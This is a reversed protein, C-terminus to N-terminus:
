ATSASASMGHVATAPSLMDDIAKDIDPSRRSQLFGTFSVALSLYHTGDTWMTGREAFRQLIASVEDPGVDNLEATVASCSRAKDCLLFIRSEVRDLLYVRKGFLMPRSDVIVIQGDLDLYVLASQTHCARWRDIADALPRTYDSVHKTQETDAEFFYALNFVAERSLTGYVDYYSEYPRVNRFGLESSRVFNPSFRDLRIESGRAPPQLHCLLPIQLAMRRYEAPDEGPFGWLLNWDVKIGLETCWKLVQINQSSSVGKRMLTLVQDSLSEIGPQIHEVGADKLAQVHPKTVNSKIEYFLELGTGLQALKPLFAEYYRYDMINDVFCIKTGPHASSIATVERLADDAPRSRFTMTSGNLGCFTCHNKMGWWCGRSTELPIHVKISEGQEGLRHLADFYDAFSPSVYDELNTVMRTQIFPGALTSSDVLSRVDSNLLPNRRALLSQVLPAIILDAEGSIVFDISGFSRALERGMDSECNAGGMIIRLSGDLQKLRAAVALSAMNQQFVSTFGVIKPSLALIEHAAYDVFRCATDALAAVTEALYAKQEDLSDDAALEDAREFDYERVGFTRALYQERKPASPPSVAHSFLWEGLMDTTRPFGAAIRNYTDIGVLAAFDLTLYRSMASIGAANLRAQLIGLALSPSHLIGFPLSVLVVDASCRADM